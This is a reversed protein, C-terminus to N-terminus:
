IWCHETTISISQQSRWDCAAQEHQRDVILKNMITNYVAIRGPQISRTTTTATFSCTTERSQRARRPLPSTHLLSHGRITPRSDDPNLVLAYLKRDVTTTVLGVKPHTTSTSRNTADERQGWAGCFWSAATADRRKHSRSLDLRIRRTHSPAQRAWM